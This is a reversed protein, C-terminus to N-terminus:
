CASVLKAEWIEITCIILGMMQNKFGFLLSFGMFRYLNEATLSAKLRPNTLDKAFLYHDLRSDQNHNTQYHTSLLRSSFM